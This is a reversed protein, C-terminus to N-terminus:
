HRQIHASQWQLMFPKGFDGPRGPQLRMVSRCAYLCNYLAGHLSPVALGARSEDDSSTDTASAWRATAQAKTNAARGRAQPDAAACGVNERPEPCCRGAACAWASFSRSDRRTEFAVAAKPCVMCTKTCKNLIQSFLHLREHSRPCKGFRHLIYDHDQEPLPGFAESGRLKQSRSRGTCRKKRSSRSSGAM